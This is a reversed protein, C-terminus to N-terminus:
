RAEEKMCLLETVGHAFLRWVQALFLASGALVKKLSGPSIHVSFIVRGLHPQLPTQIIFILFLVALPMQFLGSCPFLLNFVTLLSSKAMLPSLSSSLSLPHCFTSYPQFATSCPLTPCGQPLTPVPCTWVRSLEDSIPLLLIVAEARPRCELM